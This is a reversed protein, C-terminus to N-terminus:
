QSILHRLPFSISFSGCAIILPPKAQAKNIDANKEACGIAIQLAEEMTKALISISQNESSLANFFTESELARPSQPNILIVQQAIPYILHAIHTWDKDKLIGFILTIKTNTYNQKIYSVLSEIGQVNHSGDLIFSLNKYTLHEIRCPHVVSELGLKIAIAEVPFLNRLQNIVCLVGLLNEYQHTGKLTLSSAFELTTLTQTNWSYTITGHKLVAENEIVGLVLDSNKNIIVPCNEKIIGAKHHAIAELTDGLYETHDLSIATILTVLPSSFINTADNRGGMLAEIVCIDVSSLHMTLLAVITICEYHTPLPIKKDSLSQYAIKVRLTAENMLEIPIITTNLHICERIDSFYPSIFTGVTYGAKTYISSIMTASSGKGNTGAIHIVRLNNHFNGLEKLLAYMGDLGMDKTFSPLSMLFETYLDETRNNKM